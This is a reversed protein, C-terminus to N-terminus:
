EKLNDAYESLEELANRLMNVSDGLQKQYDTLHNTLVQSVGAGFIEVNAILQSRVQESLSTFQSGAERSLEAARQLDKVLAARIDAETATVRSVAELRVATESLKAVSGAMAQSATALNTTAQTNAQSAQLTQAELGSMQRALLTLRDAVEGMGKLAKEVNSTAAALKEVMDSATSQIRGTAEQTAETLRQNSDILGDVRGQMASVTQSVAAQTRQNAAEQADTMKTIALQLKDMVVQTSAAVAKGQQQQHEGLKALLDRMAASVADTQAGGAKKMDDVLSRMTLEVQSMSTATQTLLASLDGMQGGVSERMQAMFASMLNELVAGTAQTQSGSAVKVTEAIDQLPQKLSSEIQVGLDVTMKRTAEVQRESLNTLLVKFEDVLSEKLQRTQSASEQSAQVLSSLYEEGVGARFLADLAQTLEGVWKACASYLWKEIATVVIASAIAFGSFTFAYQVELFLGKLSSTLRGADEINLNFNALGSILGYFTGIIGLGTLIGPLHKFYESGLWPDIVTEANIFNQAPVTARIATTRREGETYEVQEHLTEEYERWAFETRSGSFVEELQAKVSLPAAGKAKSVNNALRALRSRLGIGRVLYQVLFHLLMAVVVGILVQLLVTKQVHCFFSIVWEQKDPDLCRDM